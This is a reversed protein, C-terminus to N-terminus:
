TLESFSTFTLTLQSKGQWQEKVQKIIKWCLTQHKDIYVTLIFGIFTVNRYHKIKSLKYDRKYMNGFM